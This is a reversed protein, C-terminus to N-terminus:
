RPDFADRWLNFLLLVPIAFPLAVSCWFGFRFAKERYHAVDPPQLWRESLPGLFYCVNAVFMMFLYGLGQFVLTFGSFEDAQSPDAANIVDGFRVIVAAYAVFALIGATVLGLNYRLRRAEWWRFADSPVPNREVYDTLM